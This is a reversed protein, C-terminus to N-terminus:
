DCTIVTVDSGLGNCIGYDVLGLDCLTHSENDCHEAFVSTPKGCYQCKEIGNHYIYKITCWKYNKDLLRDLFNDYSKHKDTDTYRSFGVCYFRYAHYGTPNVTCGSDSSTGAEAMRPVVTVVAAAMAAIAVAKKVYETVKKKM